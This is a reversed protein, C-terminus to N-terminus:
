RYIFHIKMQRILLPMHSKYVKKENANIHIRISNFNEKFTSKKKWFLLDNAPAVAHSTQTSTIPSCNVDGCCEAYSIHILTRSRTSLM